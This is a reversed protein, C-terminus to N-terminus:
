KKNFPKLYDSVVEQIEELLGIGPINGGIREELEDIQKYLVKFDDQDGYGLAEAIELQLRAESVLRILTENEAKTRNVQKTLAQAKELNDDARVIPLPFIYNAITLSNLASRLTTKANELRGADILLIVDKIVEPYTALPISIVSFVVESELENLIDKAKQIEKKELLEITQKRAQEIDSLTADLDHITIKTDITAFAMDPDRALVTELEGLAEELSESAEQKKANELALLAKKTEDIAAVAEDIIKKQKESLQKKIISQEADSIAGSNNQDKSKTAPNKEEAFLPLSVLTIFLLITSIWLSNAKFIM